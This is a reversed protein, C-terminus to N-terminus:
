SYAPEYPAKQLCVLVWSLDWKPTLSRQVPSQLEFSRILESLVPNSGIRNGTKFKLTHSIMSRYGKITSIQYKKESFLYILFDALVTFPASVLKVKKRHCWNSYVIWKADYVKQTSTRRSKSVFDAVNQLFKKDRISQKIVALCSPRTIPSKSTSVKRKSTDTIKSLAYSSSSSISVTTIGRLVVLRPALSSCYSSNQM